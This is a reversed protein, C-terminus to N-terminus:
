VLIEKFYNEKIINENQLYQYFSRISSLKRSISNRKLGKSYLYELYEQVTKKTIKTLETTFDYLELLDNRYNTITYTSDKKLVKLYNLYAEIYKM